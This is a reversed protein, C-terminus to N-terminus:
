SNMKSEEASTAEAQYFKTRYRHVLLAFVIMVVTVIALRLANEQPNWIDHGILGDFLVMPIKGIATAAIFAVFSAGSLSATINIAGTPVFPALRLLLISWFANDRIWHDFQNLKKHRSLLSAMYSRGYYRFFVFALAAGVIEGIWAILLGTQWGFVHVFAGILFFSPILAIFNQVTSLFIAILWAKWGLENLYTALAEIDTTLSMTLFTKGWETQWISFATGLFIALYILKKIPM